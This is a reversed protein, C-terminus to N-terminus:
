RINRMPPPQVLSETVELPEEKQDDQGMHLKSFPVEDIDTTQEM